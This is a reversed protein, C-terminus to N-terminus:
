ACFRAETSYLIKQIEKLTEDGKGSGEEQSELQAQVLIEIDRLQWGVCCEADQIRSAVSVFRPLISIV